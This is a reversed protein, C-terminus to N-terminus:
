RARDVAEQARDNGPDLPELVVETEVGDASELDIECAPLRLDLLLPGPTTFTKRMAEEEEGESAQPPGRRALVAPSRAPRGPVGRTRVVLSLLGDRDGKLETRLGQPEKRRTPTAVVRRLGASARVARTLREAAASTADDGGAAIAALDAQLADLFRQMEM